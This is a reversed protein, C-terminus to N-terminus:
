ESLTLKKGSDLWQSLILKCYKSKTIYMSKARKELESAMTEAMNIGVTKTGKGISHTAM